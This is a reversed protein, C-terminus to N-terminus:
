FNMGFLKDDKSLTRIIESKDFVLNKPVDTDIVTLIYQIDYDICYRRILNILQIKENDHLSEFIGDHFIFKQLNGGKAAYYSIIAIDFAACQVKLASYGEGEKTQSNEINIDTKFEINGVRNPEKYFVANLNSIEKTIESFRINIESWIPNEKNSEKKLSEIVEKSKAKKESLEEELIDIRNINKLKEKLTLIETELNLADEQYKKFKIFTDETTLYHLIDSRKQNANVLNSEVEIKEQILKKLEEELILKRESFIKKNFSELEQYNKVISEKFYVNVDEFIKKVDTFDLDTFNQLSTNIQNIEFNITYKRSNLTAIDHEINKVLDINLEDEKKYFNFKDLEKLNELKEKEKYNIISRIKDQEEPSVLKEHKYKKIFDKDLKIDSDLDYKQKMVEPSFGLLKFLYPKWDIDKQKYSSNKQFVDQYDNQTRISYSLFSRFEKLEAVLDSNIMGTFVADLNVEEDKSKFMPINLYDWDVANTLDLSTDHVKLSVKSLTKISRKITLFNNDSLCIELFFSWDEFTNKTETTKLFLNNTNRQLLLFNILEALKTKGLNHPHKTERDEEFISGLIINLGRNFVIPKMRTDNSYVKSLKM